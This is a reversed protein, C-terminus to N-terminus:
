VRKLDTRRIYLVVLAALGYIAAALVFVSRMGFWMAFTAGLLPSISRGAATISANLGYTAGQNGLPAQLNM